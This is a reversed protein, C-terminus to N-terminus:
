LRAKRIESVVDPERQLDILDHNTRIRWVCNEKVLGFIKGLIKREGEDSRMRKFNGQINEGEMDRYYDMRQLHALYFQICKKEEM